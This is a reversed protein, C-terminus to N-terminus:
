NFRLHIEVATRDSGFDFTLWLRELGPAPEIQFCTGRIIAPTSVACPAGADCLASKLGGTLMNTVEGIADNVDAESPVEEPGLGLMAAAMRNAATASLHLYVIGNVADGGFGVSGTVRDAFDPLQTDSAPIAEMALMTSFVDVLHQSM